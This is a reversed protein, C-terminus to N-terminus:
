EEEAEEGNRLTLPRQSGEVQLGIVRGLETLTQSLDAAERVVRHHKISILHHEEVSLGGLSEDLTRNTDELGNIGGLDSLGDDGVTWQHHTQELDRGTLIHGQVVALIGNRGTGGLHEPDVELTALDTADTPAVHELAVEHDGGTEALHIDDEADLVGLFFEDARVALQGDRGALVVHAVGEGHRHLRHGHVRGDERGTTDLSLDHSEVALRHLDDLSGFERRPHFEVSLVMAISNGDLLLVESLVVQTPLSSSETQLRRVVKGCRREVHQLAADGVAPIALGLRVVAEGDRHGVGHRTRDRGVSREGLQGTDFQRLTDIGRHDVHEGLVTNDNGVVTGGLAEADQTTAVQIVGDAEDEDLDPTASRSDGVQDLVTREVRADVHGGVLLIGDIGNVDDAVGVTSTLEDDLGETVDAEVVGLIDRHLSDAEIVNLTAHLVEDVANPDHLHVLGLEDETTTEGTLVGLRHEIDLHVVGADTTQGVSRLDPALRHTHRERGDDGTLEFVVHIANLLTGITQNLSGGQLLAVLVHHGQGVLDDSVGGDLDITRQEVDAALPDGAVLHVTRLHDLDALDDATRQVVTGVGEGALEHLRDVLLDGLLNGAHGQLGLGVAFHRLIEARDLQTLVGLLVAVGEDVGPVLVEPLDVQLEGLVRGVVGEDLGLLAVVAGLGEALSDGLHHPLQRGLLVPEDEGHVLHGEGRERGALTLAHGGAVVPHDELAVLCSLGDGVQHESGELTRTDALASSLWGLLLGTPNWVRTLQSYM